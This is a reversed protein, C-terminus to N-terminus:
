AHVVGLMALRVGTLIDKQAWTLARNVSVTGQGEVGVAGFSAADRSRWINVAIELEVEVVSTPAAGYGWIATIRYWQGPTWGSDRYIRYPREDEEALYDAVDTESEDTTGRGSVETIGTISDAQYAPPWLWHGGPAMVDKETAVAGYAAFAFGLAENVIANARDLVNQMETNKATSTGVQGLYERLQTVTAYSTM